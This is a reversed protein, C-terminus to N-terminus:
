GLVHTGLQNPHRGCHMCKSLSVYSDLSCLVEASTCILIADESSSSEAYQKGVGLEVAGTFTVFIGISCLTALLMFGDDAGFSRLLKARTFLRLSYILLAFLVLTVVIALYIPGRDYVLSPLSAAFRTVSGDADM